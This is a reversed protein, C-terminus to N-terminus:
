HRGLGSYGAYTNCSLQDTEQYNWVWVSSVGFPNEEIGKIKRWQPLAAKLSEAIEEDTGSALNIEFMVTRPFQDPM